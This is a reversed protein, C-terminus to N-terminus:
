MLALSQMEEINAIKKKRESKDEEEEDEGTGDLGHISEMNISIGRLNPSFSPSIVNGEADRWVTIPIEIIGCERGSVLLEVVLDYENSLLSGRCTPAIGLPISVSGEFDAPLVGAASGTFDVIQPKKAADVSVAENGRGDSFWRQRRIWVRLGDIRSFKRGISRGNPGQGRVTVRYKLHEGCIFSTKNPVIVRFEPANKFPPQILSHTTSPPPPSGETMQNNRRFSGAGGGNQTNKLVSDFGKSDQRSVATSSASSCCLFNWKLNDVVFSSVDAAKMQAMKPTSVVRIRKSATYTSNQNNSGSGPIQLRANLLYLVIGCPPIAGLDCSPPIDNPLKLNVRWMTSPASPELFVVVPDFISNSATINGPLTTREEGMLGVSGGFLVGEEINVNSATPKLQVTVWVDDGPAFTRRDSKLIVDYLKNPNVSMKLFLLPSCLSIFRISEETM